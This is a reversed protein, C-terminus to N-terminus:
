AVGKLNEPLWERTAGVMESFLANARDRSLDAVLPDSHFLDALTTVDGKLVADLLASQRTAHDAVQTNLAEPLAGAVVPTVGLGSFVANTEVIAGEPLGQMQGRNPLNVNSVFAGEGFLAVIQDVLAEDSKEAQVPHSGDIMDAATQQKQAQYRVRYEVPTLGFAWDNACSLYDGAPVFEALHRDGAAAPIGFRRLLDFKVKSRDGFYSEHEDEPIPTIWAGITNQRSRWHMMRVVAWLM